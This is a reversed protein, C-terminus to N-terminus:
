SRGRTAPRLLVVQVVQANIEAFESCVVQLDPLEGQQQSYTAAIAHGREWWTKGQEQARHYRMRCRSLVTELERRQELALKHIYQYTQHVTHSHQTDM